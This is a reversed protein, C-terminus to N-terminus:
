SIMAREVMSGAAWRTRMASASFRSRSSRLHVGGGDVASGLGEGERDERREDADGQQQADDGAGFAVVEVLEVGAEAGEGRQAVAKGDGAVVDGRGGHEGGDADDGEGTEVAEDEGQAGRQRQKQQHHQQGFWQAVRAPEGHAVGEGVPGGAATDPERRAGDREGREEGQHDELERAGSVEDREDEAELAGGDTRGRDDSEPQQHDSVRGDAPHLARREDM